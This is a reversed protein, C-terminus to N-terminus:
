PEKHGLNQTSRQLSAVSLKPFSVLVLKQMGPRLLPGHHMVVTNYKHILRFSEVEVWKYAYYSKRNTKGKSNGLNM